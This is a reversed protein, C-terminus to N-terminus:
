VRLIYTLMNKVHIRRVCKENIMINYVFYIFRRLFEQFLFIFVPLCPPTGGGETHPSTHVRPSAMSLLVKVVIVVVSVVGVGGGVSVLGISVFM